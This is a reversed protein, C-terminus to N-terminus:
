PHRCIVCQLRGINIEGGREHRVLGSKVRCGWVFIGVEWGLARVVM